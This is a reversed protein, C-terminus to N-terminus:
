NKKPGFRDDEGPAKWCFPIKVITPDQLIKSIGLFDLLPIAAGRLMVVGVGAGSRPPGMAHRPPGTDRRGLIIGSHNLFQELIIGLM